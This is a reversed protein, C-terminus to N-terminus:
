FEGKTRLTQSMIGEAHANKEEDVIYEIPLEVLENSYAVDEKAVAVSSLFNPDFQLRYGAHSFGYHSWMLIDGHAKLRASDCFCLLRFSKDAISRASQLLNSAIAEKTLSPFASADQNNSLAIERVEDPTRDKGDIAKLAEAYLNFQEGGLSQELMINRLGEDIEGVINPIFEFPDNLKSPMALKLRQYQLSNVVYDGFYRIM